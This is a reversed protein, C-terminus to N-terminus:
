SCVRKGKVITCKKVVALAAKPAVLPPKRVVTTVQKIKPTETRAIDKKLPIRKEFKKGADISKIKPDLKVKPDLKIVPEVVAKQDLKIKPDLKLKPDIKIVPRTTVKATTVQHGLVLLPDIPRLRPQVKLKLAEKANNGTPHVKLYALYAAPTNAVVAKHWSVAEVRRKLHRRIFDAFPDNPYVTLFEEYFEVDDEELVIEYAERPPRTRIEARRISRVQRAEPRESILVPQDTSTAIM